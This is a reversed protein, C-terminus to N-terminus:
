TIYSIKGTEAKYNQNKDSILMSFQSARFLYM